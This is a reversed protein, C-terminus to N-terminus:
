EAAPAPAAAAAEAEAAPAAEETAAAPTATAEAITPLAAAAICQGVAKFHDDATHFTPVKINPFETELVTKATALMLDGGDGKSVRGLIM